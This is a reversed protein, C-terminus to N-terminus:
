DKLQVVERPTVDTFSSENSGAINTGMFYSPVQCFAAFRAAITKMDELEAIQQLRSTELRVSSEYTEKALERATSVHSNDNHMGSESSITAEGADEVDTHVEVPTEERREALCRLKRSRLEECAKQAVMRLFSTASRRAVIHARARAAIDRLSKLCHQQRRALVRAKEAKLLWEKRARDKKGRMRPLGVVEEAGQLYPASQTAEAASGLVSQKHPATEAVDDSATNLDSAVSSIRHVEAAARETGERIWESANHHSLYAMDHRVIDEILLKVQVVEGSSLLAAEVQQQETYAELFGGYKLFVQGGQVVWDSSSINLSTQVAQDAVHEANAGAITRFLNMFSEQGVLGKHQPDLKQFIDLMNIRAEQCRRVLIELLSPPSVHEDTSTAVTVTEPRPPPLINAQNDASPDGSRDSPTVRPASPDGSKNDSPMISLSQRERKVATTKKRHPAPPQVVATTPAVPERPTILYVRPSVVKPPSRRLKAAAIAEKRTEVELRQAEVANELNRLGDAAQPYEDKISEFLMRAEDFESTLTLVIGLKYIAYPDNPNLELARRFEDVSSQLDEAAEYACALNIRLRFKVEENTESTLALTYLEIARQLEGKSHLRVAAKTVMKLKQTPELSAHNQPLSRWWWEFGSVSNICEPNWLYKESVVVRKSPSSCSPSQPPSGFLPDLTINAEVDLQKEIRSPPANPTNCRYQRPGDVAALRPMSFIKARRSQEVPSTLPRTVPLKMTPCYPSPAEQYLKSITTTPSFLPRHPSHSRHGTLYPLAIDRISARFPSLQTTSIRLPNEDRSLRAFVESDEDYTEDLVIPPPLPMEVSFCELLRAALECLTPNDQHRKQLSFVFMNPQWFQGQAALKCAAVVAANDEEALLVLLRLCPIQLSSSLLAAVLM